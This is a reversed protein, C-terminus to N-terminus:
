TTFQLLSDAAIKSSAKRQGSSHQVVHHSNFNSCFKASAFILVSSKEFGNNTSLECVGDTFVRYVVHDCCKALTCKGRDKTM